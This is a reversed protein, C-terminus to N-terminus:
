FQFYIHSVTIHELSKNSTHLKSKVSWIKLYEWNTQQDFSEKSCKSWFVRCLRQFVWELKRFVGGPKQLSFLFGFVRGLTKFAWGHMQFVRRRTQTIVSGRSDWDAVTDFLAQILCFLLSPFYHSDSKIVFKVEGFKFKVLMVLFAIIFRLARVLTLFIHNWFM